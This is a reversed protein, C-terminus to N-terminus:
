LAVTRGNSRPVSREPWSDTRGARGFEMMERGRADKPYKKLGAKILRAMLVDQATTKTHYKM